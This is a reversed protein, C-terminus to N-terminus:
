KRTGNYEYNYPCVTCEYSYVTCAKECTDCENKIKETKNNDITFNTKDTAM